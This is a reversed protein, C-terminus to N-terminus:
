RKLSRRAKIRHFMLVRTSCDKPCRRSTRSQSIVILYNKHLDCPDDGFVIREVVAMEVVQLFGALDCARIVDHDHHASIKGLPARRSQHVFVGSRPHCEGAARIQHQLERDDMGCAAGGIEGPAGHRQQMVQFGDVAQAKPTLTCPRLIERPDALRDALFEREKLFVQPSIEGCSISKGEGPM